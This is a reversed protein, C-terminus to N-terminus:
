FKYNVGASFSSADLSKVSGLHTYDGVVTIQENLKFEGGVGYTLGIESESDSGSESGFGYDVSYEEELSMYSLGAKAHVAVQENVHFAAVAAGYLSFGSLEYKFNEGFISNDSEATGMYVFGTEASLTLQESTGLDKFPVGAVLGFGLANDYSLADYDVLHLSGGVYKNDLDLQLASVNVSALLAAALVTKKV